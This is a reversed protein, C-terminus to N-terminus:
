DRKKNGDLSLKTFDNYVHFSKGVLYQLYDTFLKNGNDKATYSFSITRLTILPLVLNKIFVDLDKKDITEIDDIIIDTFSNGRCSNKVVSYRTHFLIRSGNEFIINANFPLVRATKNKDKIYEKCRELVDMNICVFLINSNKNNTAITIAHDLLATTKGKGRPLFVVNNENTKM